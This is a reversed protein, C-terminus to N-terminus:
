KGPRASIKLRTGTMPMVGKTARALMSIRLCPIM